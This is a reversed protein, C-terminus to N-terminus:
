RAAKIALWRSLRASRWTAVYCAWALAIGVIGDIMYHWGTTMSGIFIALVFIAFIVEGSTWLRRMWLFVYTQFAVHLSPFAGIGFVIRIADTPPQGATVRLVNQYNRMLIAQLAQTRRLAEDHAFWLDPFRFAPGLSPVLMYLWAGVLWLAANGNAFAIRVRRSPESLFYAFAVLTSVYFINAYTWDVARLFADNFGDLFLINPSLGFFLIRDLDWLEQDFLRPHVVPVVLKIWGYTWVMLTGFVVLRLTDALWAGSRIIRFYARDRRILAIASRIVIGALAQFLLGFGLLIVELPDWVLHFTGRALLVIAALNVLTFLEFFYFRRM